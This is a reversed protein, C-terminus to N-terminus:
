PRASSFEQEEAAAAAGVAGEGGGVAVVVHAGAAAAVVVRRSQCRRVRAVVAVQEEAVEVEDVAVGAEQSQFRRASSVVGEVGAAAV